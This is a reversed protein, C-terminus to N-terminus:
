ITIWLIFTRYETCVAFSESGIHNNTVSIFNLEEEVVVRTDPIVVDNNKLLM